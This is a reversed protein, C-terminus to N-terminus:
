PLRPDQLGGQPKFWAQSLNVDKLKFMEASTHPKGACAQPSLFEGKNRQKDQELASTLLSERYM